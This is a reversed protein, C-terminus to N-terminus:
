AAVQGKQAALGAATAALATAATDAARADKSEQEEELEAEYAKLDMDPPMGEGQQLMYFLMSRPIDGNKRANSLATLLQPDLISIDYDTNLQYSAKESGPIGQWQGILRIVQTLGHSVNNAFTALVSNEGARHIRAAEASEVGKKEASIIRAGLIAMREECNEIANKEQEIGVGQFELFGVQAQEPPFFLFQSGGLRSPVPKGNGDKEQECGTAYPTPVGTYHLGNEYDATKQYHGINEYALDLLMSKEPHMGPLPFFPIFKLNKGGLKPYIPGEAPAALGSALADDYINVMYNGDDDLSLARYKNKTETSFEDNAIRKEYPEKLVVLTLVKSNNRTEYRYNILSEASYYAAYARNGQKESTAKDPVQSTPPYDVLVGGWNTPLLDWVLNAAFQDLSAGALDINELIDKLQEPIDTATPDKAFIMGHLGHATRGTAGFWHPRALYCNWDPDELGEPRPLYISGKDKIAKEGAIADRVIEWEHRNRLYESCETNVAM